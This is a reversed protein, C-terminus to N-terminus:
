DKIFAPEESLPTCLGFIRGDCQRKFEDVTKLPYDQGSILHFYDFGGVASAERMLHLIAQLHTFSGWRVTYIKSVTCGLSNLDAVERLGIANSRSDVHIFPKFFTGDLRQVLRHLMPYDTYATIIAAHKMRKQDEVLSHDACGCPHM